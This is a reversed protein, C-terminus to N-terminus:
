SAWLMVSDMQRPLRQPATQAIRDRGGWLAMWALLSNVLKDENIHIMSIYLVWGEVCFEEGEVEGERAGSDEGGGGQM